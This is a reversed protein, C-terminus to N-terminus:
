SESRLPPEEEGNTENERHPSYESSPFPHGIEASKPSTGDFHPIRTRGLYIQNLDHFAGLSEHRRRTGGVVRIVLGIGIVSWLIITFWPTWPAQIALSIAWATIALAM